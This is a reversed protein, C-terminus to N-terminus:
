ARPGTPPATSGRVVLEALGTLLRAEVDEREVLAHLMRAAEVGVQHLPMRVTTLAPWLVDAEAVDHYGVVSVDEPVRLGARAIAGYVAAASTVNDVVLATPRDELALLESVARAAAGHDYGVPRYLDTSPAAEVQEFAEAFGIVRSDTFGDPHALGGVLAVRRHGLGLLHRTARRVGARDDVWISPHVGDPSALVVCPVELRALEDITDDGLQARRVLFGDTMGGAALRSLLHSGVTLWESDALLLVGDNRAVEQQIGRVVHEFVPNAIKPVVASVVGTRATRLSRAAHNVTYGTAEISALVRQRTADSMRITGSGGSITASVVATSVGAHKAVDRLTVM